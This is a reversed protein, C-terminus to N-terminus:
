IVANTLQLQSGLMSVDDNQKAEDAPTQQNTPEAPKQEPMKSSAAGDANQAPKKRVQKPVDDMDFEEEEDSSNVCMDGTNSFLAAIRLLKMKLNKRTLTIRCTAIDGVVIEDEDDVIIEAKLEMRSVHESFAKIDANEQESLWDVERGQNLFTGLDRIPHKDRHIRRPFSDDYHPIQLLSQSRGEIAQILSRRFELVSQATLFWDSLVSVEMMCQTIPLSDKLLQHLKELLRPNMYSHLRQMHGNILYCNRAIIPLNFVQKRLPGIQSRLEEMDKDDTREIKMARSEGSAALLEPLSKFRTGETMVHTLFEDTLAQYAKAILIFKAGQTPDNVNKDPHYKLSMLRYAKKIERQTASPSVDLIEFPDFTKISQVDQLNRCILIFGLWCVVLAGFEM